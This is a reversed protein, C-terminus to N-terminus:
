TAPAHRCAGPDFDDFHDIFADPADAGALEGQPYGHRVIRVAIGAARATRVDTLSDGLLLAQGPEIHLKQLAHMVVGPDPKKVALTDGAVILDFASALDHRALLRHAFASEKNTLLATRIGAKSLRALLERAGPFLSSRTGCRASYDRHFGPWAANAAAPTAGAHAFAKALLARAGDGIWGRVRAEDVAPLDHRRLTDNLADTLEPATEMLTGDLDFLVARM